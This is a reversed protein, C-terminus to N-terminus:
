RVLAPPNFVNEYDTLDMEASGIPLNIKLKILIHNKDESIWFVIREDDTLWNENNAVTKFKICRFTGKTTKINERKLFKFSIPVIKEGILGDIHFTDDTIANNFDIIRARYFASVLDDIIAINSIIQKPVGITISATENKSFHNFCINENIAFGGKESKHICLWPMIIAKDEPPKSCDKKKLIWNFAAAIKVDGILKYCANCSENSINPKVEIFIDAAHIFGYHIKYILKEGEKFAKNVEQNSINQTAALQIKGFLLLLILLIKM